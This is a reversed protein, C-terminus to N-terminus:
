GGLPSTAIRALTPVVPVCPPPREVRWQLVAVGRAKAMATMGAFGQRLATFRPTEPLSCVDPHLTRKETVGAELSNTTKGAFSM